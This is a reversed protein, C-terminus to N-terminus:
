YEVCTEQVFLREEFTVLLEGVGVETEKTEELALIGCHINTRIRLSYPPRTVAPLRQNTESPGEPMQQCSGLAWDGGHQAGAEEM